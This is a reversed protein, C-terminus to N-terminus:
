RAHLINGSGAPVHATYTHAVQATEILMDSVEIAHAEDETMPKLAGTQESLPADPPAISLEIFGSDDTVVTRIPVVRAEFTADTGYPRLSLGKTVVQQGRIYINARCAASNVMLAHIKRCPGTPVRAVVGPTLRIGDFDYISSMHRAAEGHGRLSVKKFAELDHRVSIPADDDRIHSRLFRALITAIRESIMDGPHASDKFLSEPAVAESKAVELLVERVDLFYYRDDRIVADYASLVSSEKTVLTINPIMLFIPQCGRLRAARGIWEIWQRIEPIYWGGNPSGNCDIVCTDILVYDADFIAGDVGFYPGIVSPSAGLRATGAVSIAGSRALRGFWGAQYITNSQGIVSCRPQTL